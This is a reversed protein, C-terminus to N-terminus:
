PQLAVEACFVDGRPVRDALVEDTNTSVRWLAIDRYELALLCALAAFPKPGMPVCLVRHDQRYYSCVQDLIATTVAWDHLPYPIVVNPDPRDFLHANAEELPTLYEPASGPNAYFCRVVAPDLYEILGQAREAEYGLGLLLAVRDNPSKTSPLVGRVPGVSRPPRHVTTPPSFAAPTYGLVLRSIAGTALHQWCEAFLSWMWVRTMSSFDIAISTPHGADRILNRLRGRLAVSDGGGFPTIEFGLRRFTADNKFHQTTAGDVFSLALRMGLPRAQESAFTSRTEYGSAAIFIDANTLSDNRVMRLTKAM